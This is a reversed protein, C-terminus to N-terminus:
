RPSKFAPEGPSARFTQETFEFDTTKEDIIEGRTRVPLHGLQGPRGDELTGDTCFVNRGACRCKHGGNM